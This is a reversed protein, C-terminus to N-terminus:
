KGYKEIRLQEIEEDTLYFGFEDVVEEFSMERFTAEKIVDFDGSPLQIVKDNM